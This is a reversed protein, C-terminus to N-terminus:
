AALSFSVPYHAPERGQLISGHCLLAVRASDIRRAERELWAIEAAAEDATLQRDGGVDTM